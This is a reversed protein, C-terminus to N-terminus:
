LRFRPVQFCTFFFVRVKALLLLMVLFKEFSFAQGEWLTM